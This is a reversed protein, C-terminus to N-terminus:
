KKKFKDVCQKKLLEYKEVFERDPKLEMNANKYRMIGRHVNTHVSYGFIREAIYRTSLGLQFNMICYCIQKADHLEGNVNKQKLTAVTTDFHESVVNLITNIELTKDDNKNFYSVIGDKLEKISYKKLGSQINKLLQELEASEGM